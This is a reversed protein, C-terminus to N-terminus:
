QKARRDSSLVACLMNVSLDLKVTRFVCTPRKLKEKKKCVAVALLTITMFFPLILFSLFEPIIVITEDSHTYNFYVYSHTSNSCPLLDCPVETRNIFVRYTANMLNTPVCIRCFGATGQVGTANFIIATGNFQFDSITSNCITQVSYESTAKFDSIMGMLPYYDTNNEDIFYPSDGIGDSGTENQYPGRYLDTGNYDSWYNGCSPYGGDWVDVASEELLVQQDNEILNNHCIINGSSGSVTLGLGHNIATNQGIINQMISNNSSLDDLMIGSWKNATINNRVINNNSSSFVRIGDYINAIIRNDSVSNNSSSSFWIGYYNGALNNEAISNDSSSYVGVAEYVARTIYNGIVSNNSSFVLSVGRHFTEIQMNRITVNARASLYIGTYIPTRGLGSGHLVYGNGDVIISDREVVIGNADSTINGTLIYTLNDSTSIPATPPDISGDARIYIPESAETTQAELAIPLIIVLLPVLIMLLAPQRNM